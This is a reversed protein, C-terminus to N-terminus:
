EALREAMKKRGASNVMEAISGQKPSPSPKPKAEKKDGSVFSQLGKTIKAGWSDKAGVQYDDDAM